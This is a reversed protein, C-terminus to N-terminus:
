PCAQWNALLILFDLIGVVGDGDLDAPCPEPEGLCPGWAGFMVFIDDLEVVGNGDIDLLCPPPPSNLLASVSGVTMSDANVTVLDPEGDNNLDASIVFNPNAKEGVEVPMLPVFTVEGIKTGINQLVQVAGAAVVVLDPDGDGDLDVAEISRPDVGVGLDPLVRVFNGGGQNILMTATGDAGNVAVIDAKGDRDVDGTSLDRPNAGVDFTM